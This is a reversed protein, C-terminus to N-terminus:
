ANGAGRMQAALAATEMGPTGGAALGDAAGLRSSDPGNQSLKFTNDVSEITMEVPVIQRMLRALVDPAMKSAKWPAKPALRTEFNESLRDLHACLLDEDILRLQGRLHVAVYNWTPVRDDEGYWDPSIYGDPGSVIMLAAASGNKLHRVLPNSRVLHAAIVGDAVVFPVHAAMVGDPGAGSNAVTLTGFGRERALDLARTEPQQRYAPNPHL